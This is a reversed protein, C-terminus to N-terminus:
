IPKTKGDNKEERHSRSNRAWLICLFVLPGMLGGLMSIVYSSRPMDGKEPALSLFISIMGVYIFVWTLIIGIAVFWYYGESRPLNGEGFRWKFIM